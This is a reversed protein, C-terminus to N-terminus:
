KLELRKGVEPIYHVVGQVVGASYNGGLSYTTDQALYLSDVNGNEKALEVAQKQIEPHANAVLISNVHSGLVLLDNGSDGSFITRSLDYGLQQQLFLIAHLKTANRPLIDLLGVEAQEDISLVLSALVGCVELERAALGVIKEHDSGMPLYYSLKYDSQKTEEQLTLDTFHSLLKKLEVHSKGRWDRSIQEQWSSMEQWDGNTNEYIKSGVDTIAYAPIPLSYEEIADEVLQLHRGTVYVLEVEPLHCMQRFTDRAMPHEPQSGNPIITRDMDTCILLKNM